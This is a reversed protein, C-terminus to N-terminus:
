SKERIVGRQLTHDIALRGGTTRATGIKGGVECHRCRVSREGCCSIKKIAVGFETCTRTLGIARRGVRHV